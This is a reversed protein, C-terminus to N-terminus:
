LSLKRSSPVWRVLCESSAEAVGDSSSSSSSRFLKFFSAFFNMFFLFSLCFYVSVLFCVLSMFRSLSFNMFFESHFECSDLLVRFSTFCWPSPLPLTTSYKVVYIFQKTSSYNCTSFEFARPCRLHNWPIRSFASSSHQINLKMISGCLGSSIFLFSVQFSSPVTAHSLLSTTHLLCFWWWIVYQLINVSECIPKNQSGNMRNAPINHKSNTCKHHMRDLCITCYIRPAWHIFM